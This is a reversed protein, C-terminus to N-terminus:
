GRTSRHSSLVRCIDRNRTLVLCAGRHPRDFANYSTSSISQERGGFARRPMLTSSFRSLQPSHQAHVLSRSADAEEIAAWKRGCVRAAWRRLAESERPTRPMPLPSTPWTNM